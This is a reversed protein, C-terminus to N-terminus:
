DHKKKTKLRLLQYIYQYEDHLTLRALNNIKDLCNLM